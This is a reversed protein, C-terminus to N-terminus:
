QDTKPYKKKMKGAKLQWPLKKEKMTRKSIRAHDTQMYRFDM